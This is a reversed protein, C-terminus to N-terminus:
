APADDRLLFDVVVFVHFKSERSNSGCVLGWSPEDSITRPDVPRFESGCLPKSGM